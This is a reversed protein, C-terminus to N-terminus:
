CQEMIVLQQFVWMSRKDTLSSLAGTSGSGDDAAPSRGAAPAAVGNTYGAEHARGRRDEHLRMPDSGELPELAAPERATNGVGRSRSGRMADDSLGQGGAARHELGPSGGVGAFSGRFDQMARRAAAVEALGPEAAASPVLGPGTAGRPEARRLAGAEALDPERRARKTAPRGAAADTGSAACAAAPGAVDAGGGDAARGAAAAGAAARHARKREAAQQQLARM